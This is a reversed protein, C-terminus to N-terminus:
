GNKLAIILPTNKDGDLASPLVYKSNGLSKLGEVNNTAAYELFKLARYDATISTICISPTFWSFVYLEDTTNQQKKWFAFTLLGAGFTAVAALGIKATDSNM